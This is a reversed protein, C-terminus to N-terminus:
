PGRANKRAPNFQRLQRPNRRSVGAYARMREDRCVEIKPDHEKLCKALEPGENWGDHM